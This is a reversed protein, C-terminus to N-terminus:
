SRRSAECGEAEQFTGATRLAEQRGDPRAVRVPCNGCRALDVAYHCCTSRVLDDAPEARVVRTRTKVPWRDVLETAWAAARDREDTAAGIIMLAQVARDCVVALLLRERVTAAPRIVRAARVIADIADALPDTSDSVHADRVALTKFPAADHLPWDLLVDADIRAARTFAAGLHLTVIPWFMANLLLVDATAARHLPRADLLRARWTPWQRACEALDHGGRGEHVDLYLPLDRLHRLLTPAHM